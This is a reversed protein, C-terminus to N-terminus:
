ASLRDKVKGGMKKLAEYIAAVVGLIAFLIILNLVENLSTIVFAQLLILGGWVVGLVVVGKLLGAVSTLFDKRIDLILKDPEGAYALLAVSVIALAPVLGYVLFQGPLALFPQDVETPAGRSSISYTGPSLDAYANASKTEVTVGPSRLEFQHTWVVESSDSIEVDTLVVDIGMVTFKYSVKIVLRPEFLFSSSVMFTKTEDELSYHAPYREWLVIGFLVADALLLVVGVTTFARM